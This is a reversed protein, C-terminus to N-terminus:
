DDAKEKLRAGLNRMGHVTLAFRWKRDMWIVPVCAVDVDRVTFRDSNLRGSIVIRRSGNLSTRVLLAWDELWSCRALAAKSPERGSFLRAMYSEVQEDIKEETM